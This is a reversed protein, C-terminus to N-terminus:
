CMEKVTRYLHFRLLCAFPIHKHSGRRRWVTVWAIVCGALQDIATVSYQHDIEMVPWISWFDTLRLESLAKHDVKHQEVGELQM